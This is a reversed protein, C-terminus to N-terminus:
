PNSLPITNNNVCLHLISTSMNVPSALTTKVTHITTNDCTHVLTNDYKHILTNENITGTEVVATPLVVPAHVAIAEVLPMSEEQQSPQQQQPPLQPPLQPQSPQQQPPNPQIMPATPALYASSPPGPVTPQPITTQQSQLQMTVAAFAHSGGRHDSPPPAHHNRCQCVLLVEGANDGNERFIKVWAEVAQDAIGSTSFKTKGILYDPVLTNSNWVELYLYEPQNEQRTFNISFSDNWTASSGGNDHTKTRMKHTPDNSTWLIM